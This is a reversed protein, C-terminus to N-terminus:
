MLVTEATQDLATIRLSGGDLEFNSVRALDLKASGSRYRAVLTEPYLDLLTRGGALSLRYGDGFIVHRGPEAQTQLVQAAAEIDWGQTTRITEISREAM